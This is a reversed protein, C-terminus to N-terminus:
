DVDTVTYFIVFLGGIWVVLFFIGCFQCMVSKRCCGDYEEETFRDPTRGKSRAEMDYIEAISFGAFIGTILGGLHGWNDVTPDNGQANM